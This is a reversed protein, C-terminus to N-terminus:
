DNLFERELLMKRIKRITLVYLFIFSVVFAGMVVPLRYPQPLALAGSALGLFLILAYFAHFANYSKHYAADIFSRLGIFHVNFVGALLAVGVLNWLLGYDDSVAIWPLVFRGAVLFAVLTAGGILWAMGSVKRVVRGVERIKMEKLLITARPLFVLGVPSMTFAMINMLTIGFAMAGGAKYDVLHTILFPPLSSLAIFSIDGIIRPLSYSLLSRFVDRGPFPTRHLRTSYLLVVAYVGGALFTLASQKWFIDAVSASLFIAAVMPIGQSLVKFLNAHRPAQIGRFYGYVGILLPNLLLLFGIGQLLRAPQHSGFFLYTLPRILLTVVFFLLLTVVVSSLVGAVLYQHQKEKDDHHFAIFRPISAGFGWNGFFYLFSFARRALSYLAFGEAGFRQGALKFGWLGMLLVLGETLLTALFDKKM